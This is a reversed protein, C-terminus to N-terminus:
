NILVISQNISQNISHIFSQMILQNISENLSSPFPDNEIICYLLCLLLPFSCLSSHLQAILCISDLFTKVSHNLSKQKNATQCTESCIMDGPPHQAAHGDVVGPGVVVVGSVSDGATVWSGVVVSFGLLVRGDVVVSAGIVLWTGTVVPFGFM